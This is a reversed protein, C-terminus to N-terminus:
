MGLMGLQQVRRIHEMALPVGASLALAQATRVTQKIVRGNVECGALEAIDFGARTLLLISATKWISKRSEVNLDRFPLTLSFRSAFAEDLDELRNTTVILVGNYYELLRLFVGVLANREIDSTARKQLFIDAEDILLVAKWVTALELVANLKQELTSANTGLEGASVMYLPTKLHESVAEATLTKGTGPRGHFAMMVGEGKGKVIDAVLSDGLVGTHVDVLCQVVSRYEPPIVLHDFASSNWEVPALRDILFHGWRKKRLSFAHIYSPLLFLEDDPLKAAPPQLGRKLEKRNIDDPFINERPHLRRFTAVDIMVRGSGPEPVFGVTSKVYFSGNYSAHVIGIYQEAYVKGRAELKAKHAASLPWFNLDSINRVDTFESQSLTTWIVQFAEGTWQRCSVKARFGNYDYWWNSVVYATRQGTNDDAEVETGPRFFWWLLPYITTNQPLELRQNYREDIFDLLARMAAGPERDHLHNNHPFRKRLAMVLGNNYLEIWTMTELINGSSALRHHAVFAEGDDEDRLPPPTPARSWKGDEDEIEDVETYSVGSSTTHLTGKPPPERAKEVNFAAHRIALPM